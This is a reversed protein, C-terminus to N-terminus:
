YSGLYKWNDGDLVNDHVSFWDGEKFVNGNNDLPNYYTAVVVHHEVGDKEIREVKNGTFPNIPDDVIGELALTPTDANSMLKDDTKFAKSDFDKVLLMCNFASLDCRSEGVRQSSDIEKILDENQGLTWAHDSVIVIRTNDYVGQERLYDFWEGLKLLAAMNVHYHTMQSDNGLTAPKGQADARVEHAADFATNDVNLAPVYDPESLLTPTHATDNSMMLFTGQDTDTIDTIQPLNDLVAYTDMFTGDVGTSKSLGERTQSLAFANAANYDGGNYLTPQLVTPAAKFLAYCFLNRRYSAEAQATRSYNELGEVQYRGNTVYTHIDPHDDFVGLDPIWTYGAFTPDCVTVEYGAEDFLVPMLKLAEDHKEGLTKDSRANMAEPTYEYGGYLGPSGYNTSTGFSFTNPYYTFGGLARRLEPKENVLM